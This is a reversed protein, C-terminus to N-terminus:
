ARQEWQMNEWAPKAGLAANIAQTVHEKDGSHFQGLLHQRNHPPHIPTTKEM